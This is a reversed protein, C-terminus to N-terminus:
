SIGEPEPESKRKRLWYFLYTLLYFVVTISTFLVLYYISVIFDVMVFKGAVRATYRGSLWVLNLHTFFVFFLLAFLFYLGKGHHYQLLIVPILFCCFVFVNLVQLGKQISAMAELQEASDAHNIQFWAYLVGIGICFTGLAAIAIFAKKLAEASLLRNMEPNQVM